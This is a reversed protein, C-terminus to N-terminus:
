EKDDKLVERAIKRLYIPNAQDSCNAIEELVKKYSLLKTYIIMVGGQRIINRFM